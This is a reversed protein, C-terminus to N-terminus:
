GKISEPKPGLEDTGDPEFGEKVMVPMAPSEEKPKDQQGNTVTVLSIPEEQVPAPAAARRRRQVIPTQSPPRANRMARDEASGARVTSPQKAGQMQVGKHLANAALSLAAAQVQAITLTQGPVLPPMAPEPAPAPEETVTESLEIIKDIFNELSDVLGQMRDTTFRFTLGGTRLQNVGIGPIANLTLSHIRAM